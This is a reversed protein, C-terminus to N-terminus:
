PGVGFLLFGVIRGHGFADRLDAVSEDVMFQTSVDNNYKEIVRGLTDYNTLCSEPVSDGAMVRRLDFGLPVKNQLYLQMLLELSLLNVIVKGIAFTLDDVTEGQGLLPGM